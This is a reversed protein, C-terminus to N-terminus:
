FYRENSITRDIANPHETEDALRCVVVGISASRARASALVRSVRSSFVDCRDTADDPPHDLRLRRERHTSTDLPPRDDRFALGHVVRSLSRPSVRPAITRRALSPSFNDRVNVRTKFAPLPPSARSSYPHRSRPLTTSSTARPSRFPSAPTHPSRDLSRPPTHTNISPARTRALASVSNTERGIRRIEVDRKRKIRTSPMSSSAYVSRDCSNSRGRSAHSKFTM